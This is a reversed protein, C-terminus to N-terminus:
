QGAAHHKLRLDVTEDDFSVTVRDAQIAEVRFGQITDGVRCLKGSVIAMPQNGVIMVSGVKLRGAAERRERQRVEVEAQEDRQAKAQEKEEHTTQAVAFPNVRLDGLPVQRAQVYTDFTRVIQEVRDVSLGDQTGTESGAELRELVSQVATADVAVGGTDPDSNPDAAEMSVAEAMKPGGGGLFQYAAVGAGAVLLAGLILVKKKDGFGGKSTEGPLGTELGNDSVRVLDVTSEPLKAM